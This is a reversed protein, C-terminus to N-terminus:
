DLRNLLGTLWNVKRDLWKSWKSLFTEQTPQSLIADDLYQQVGVWGQSEYCNILRYTHDRGTDPLQEAIKQLDHRVMKSLRHHTTIM